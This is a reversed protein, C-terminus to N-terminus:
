YIEEAEIFGSVDGFGTLCDCGDTGPIQDVYVSLAVTGADIADECWGSLTSTQVAQEQISVVDHVIAGPDECSADDILLEWRCGCPDNETGSQAGFSDFYALRLVTEDAVKDFSMERNKVYGEDRDDQKTFYERHVERDAADGDLGDVGDAGAPGQMAECGLLLWLM